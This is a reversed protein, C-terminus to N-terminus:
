QMCALVVIWEQFFSWQDQDSILIAKKGARRIAQVGSVDRMCSAGVGSGRRGVYFPFLSLAFPGCLTGKAM